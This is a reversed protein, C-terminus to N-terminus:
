IYELKDSTSNFTVRISYRYGGSISSVMHPFQFSTPFFVVKGAKPELVYKQLPFIVQGGTFEEHNLYIMCIFPRYGVRDKRKYIPTDYHLDDFFGEGQKSLIFNDLYLDKADALGNFDSFYQEICPFLFEQLKKHIDQLAQTSSEDRWFVTKSKDGNESEYFHILEACYDSPFKNQFEKIYITM